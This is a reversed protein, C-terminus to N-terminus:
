GSTCCYHEFMIQAPTKYGLCKRPRNNLLEQVYAVEEKTVKGFDTGKPFFQRILGNTNENTGRQWSCFPNCFYFDVSLSESVRDHRAFESGNDSTLTHVHHNRLTEIIAEAVSNGSKGYNLVIETYRSKREVLTILFYQQNSKLGFVTDLEWDGVRSREMVVPPRHRILKRGSIRIKSSGRARYRRRRKHRLYKRYEVHKFVYRYISEHSLQIGHWLRLVNSIQEPSYYKELYLRVLGWTPEAVRSSHHRREKYKRHAVKPAYNQRGNSYVQKNRSLERSVTSVSCDIILSIQRMSIKSELLAAIQYRQEQTLHHYGSM